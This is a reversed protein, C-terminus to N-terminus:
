FTSDQYDAKFEHNSIFYNQKNTATSSSNIFYDGEYNSVGTNRITVYIDTGYSCWAWDEAMIEASSLRLLSIVSNAPVILFATATTVPTTTTSIRIWYKSVSNVTTAAWNGPIDWYIRGDSEFDSTDDEYTAGSIDLSTWVSGNWYECELTYNSGRSDFEFSIGGFTTSLGTYLYEDTAGMLDFSTGNETGAETTNNIYNGLGSTADYLYVSDFTEVTESNAEGRNELMIDDLYLQNLSNYAYNTPSYKWINYSTEAHVSTWGTYTSISNGLLQNRLYKRDEATATYLEDIENKDFKGQEVLGKLEIIMNNLLEIKTTTPLNNNIKSIM